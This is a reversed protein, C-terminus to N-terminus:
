KTFWKQYKKMVERHVKGKGSALEHQAKKVSRKHKESLEYWLDTKYASLVAAIHKLLVSSETELINKIIEIKTSSINM